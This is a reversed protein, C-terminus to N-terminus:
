SKATDRLQSALSDDQQRTAYGGWALTGGDRERRMTVIEILLRRIRRKVPLPWSKWGGPLRIPEDTM